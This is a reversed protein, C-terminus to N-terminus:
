SCHIGDGTTSRISTFRVNGTQYHPRNYNYNESRGIDVRYDFELDISGYAYNTSVTVTNYTFECLWFVMM